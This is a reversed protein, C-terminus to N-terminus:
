KIEDDKHGGTKANAEVVLRKKPKGSILPRSTV